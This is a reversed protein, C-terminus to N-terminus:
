PLIEKIPPFDSKQIFIITINKDSLEFDTRIETIAPVPRNRFVPSLILLGLLLAALCAPISVWVLSFVTRRKGPRETGQVIMQIHKELEQPIDRDASRVLQRIQDDMEQDNRM